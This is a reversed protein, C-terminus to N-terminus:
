GRRGAAHSLIWNAGRSMMRRGFPINTTKGGEMYPSAIVIRARSDEITFLMRSLHEPDYSLDCDIVAVYDGHTSNFAYRLAQGLQFNVRHHLIRM